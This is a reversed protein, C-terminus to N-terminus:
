SRGYKRDLDVQSQEEARIIGSELCLEELQDNLRCRPVNIAPTTHGAQACVESSGHVHGCM